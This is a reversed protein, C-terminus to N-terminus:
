LKMSSIFQRIDEYVVNDLDSFQELVKNVWEPGHLGVQPIFGEIEGVPVMYLKNAKLIEEIRSYANAADGRPIAAKGYKKIADWKSIVRFEELIEKIEKDLLYRENSQRLIGDIKTKISNREITTHPKHLNSVIINYDRDIASWDAGLAEITRQLIAKDNMMDFDAIVRIDIELSRLATIIKAM